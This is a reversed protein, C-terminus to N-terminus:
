NIREILKSITDYIVYVNFMAVFKWYASSTLNGKNRSVLAVIFIGPNVLLFSWVAYTIEPRYFVFGTSFCIINVVAMFFSFMFAGSGGTKKVPKKFDGEFHEFDSHYKEIERRDCNEEHWDRVKKGEDFDWASVRAEREIEEQLWTDQNERNPKMRKNYKFKNKPFM